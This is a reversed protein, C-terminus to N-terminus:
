WEGDVEKVKELLISSCKSSTVMLVMMLPIISQPSDMEKWRFYGMCTKVVLMMGALGSALKSFSDQDLIVKKPLSTTPMRGRLLLGMTMVICYFFQSTLHTNISRMLEDSMRNQSAKSLSREIWIVDMLKLTGQNTEIALIYLHFAM